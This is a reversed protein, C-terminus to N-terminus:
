QLCEPFDMSELMVASKSGTLTDGTKVDKLGPIAFIDGTHVVNITEMHEARIRMLRGAILNAGTRVNYLTNGAKLSGTYLRAMAIKGAHQDTLVKFVLGTAEKHKSVNLSISEDRDQDVAFVEKRDLPNPLLDILASILPQVGINRYATGCMVPCIQGSLTGKRM